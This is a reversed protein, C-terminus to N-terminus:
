TYARAGADTSSRSTTTLGSAVDNTRMGNRLPRPLSHTSSWCPTIERTGFRAYWARGDEAPIDGFWDRDNQKGAAEYGAKLASFYQGTCLSSLRGVKQEVPQSRLSEALTTAEAPCIDWDEDFAHGTAKWLAGRQIIGYRREYPLCRKVWPEYDGTRMMDVVNRAKHVLGMLLKDLLEDHYPAKEDSVDSRHHLRRHPHHDLGQILQLSAPALLDEQSVM